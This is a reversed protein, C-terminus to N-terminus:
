GGRAKDAIAKLQRQGEPSVSSSGLSLRGRQKMALALGLNRLGDFPNTGMFFRRMLGVEANRGHAEVEAVFAEQLAPTTVNKPRVGHKMALSKLEYMVDTLKIGAPCRVTCGYCSSCMWMTNSDLVRDLMGARLAAITERPTYDMLHSTPCAGSCTGCQICQKIKEGDPLNLIAEMFEDALQQSTAKPMEAM